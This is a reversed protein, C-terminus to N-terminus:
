GGPKPPREFVLSSVIAATQERLEAFQEPTGLAVVQYLLENRLFAYRIIRYTKGDGRAFAGEYELRVAKSGAVTEDARDLLKFKEVEVECAVRLRSFADKAGLLCRSVVCKLAGLDQHEIAIDAQRKRELRPSCRRWYHNPVKFAYGYRKSTITLSEERTSVIVPTDVTGEGAVAASEAAADDPGSDDEVDSTVPLSFSVYTDHGETTESSFDPLHFAGCLCQAKETQPM